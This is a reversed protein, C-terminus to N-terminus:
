RRLPRGLFPNDHLDNFLEDFIDRRFSFDRPVSEARTPEPRLPEVSFRPLEHGQESLGITYQVGHRTVFRRTREFVRHALCNGAAVAFYAAPSVGHITFRDCTSKSFDKEQNVLRGEPIV